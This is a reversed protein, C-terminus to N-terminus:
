RSERERRRSYAVLFAIGVAPLPLRLTQQFLDNM